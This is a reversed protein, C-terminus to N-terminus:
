SNPLGLVGQSVQLRLRVRLDGHEQFLVGPPKSLELKRGSEMNPYLNHETPGDYASCKTGLQHHPDRQQYSDGVLSSWESVSNALQFDNNCSVLVM